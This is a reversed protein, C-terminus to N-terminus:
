GLDKFPEVAFPPGRHVSTNKMANLKTALKSYTIDCDDPFNIISTTYM